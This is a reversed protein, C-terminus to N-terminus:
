YFEIKDYVDAVRFQYGISSLEFSQELTFNEAQWDNAKRYVFIQPSNLDVLVYEQLTELKQYHKFKEDLIFQNKNTLIEFVILPNFFYDDNHCEAKNAIFLAPIYLNNDDIFVDVLSIDIYKERFIQHYEEISKFQRNILVTLNMRLQAYDLHYNPKLVILGNVIEYRIKELGIGQIYGAGLLDSGNLVYERLNELFDEEYYCKPMAKRWFFLPIIM